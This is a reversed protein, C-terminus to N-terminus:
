EGKQTFARQVTEWHSAGGAAGIFGPHEANVLQVIRSALYERRDPLLTPASHFFAEVLAVDQASMKEPWRM